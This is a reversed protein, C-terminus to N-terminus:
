IRSQRAALEKMIAEDGGGIVMAKAERDIREGVTGRMFGLGGPIQVADDAFFQM